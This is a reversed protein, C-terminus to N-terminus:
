LKKFNRATFAKNKLKSDGVISIEIQWWWTTLIETRRFENERSKTSKQDNMRM